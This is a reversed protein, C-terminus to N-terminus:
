RSWCDAGWFLVIGLDVFNTFWLNCSNKGFGILFVVGKANTACINFTWFAQRFSAHTAHFQTPFSSPEWVRVRENPERHHLNIVALPRPLRRQSTLSSLVVDESKRARGKSGLDDELGWERVLFM